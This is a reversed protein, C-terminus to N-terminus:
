RKGQIALATGNTSNRPTGNAELVQLSCSAVGGVAQVPMSVMLRSIDAASVASFVMVALPSNSILMSGDAPNAVTFNYAGVQV